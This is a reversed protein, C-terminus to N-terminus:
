EPGPLGDSVDSSSLSKDKIDPEGAAAVLTRVWDETSFIDDIETGPKLLGPWRV